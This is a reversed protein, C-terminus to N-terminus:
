RGKTLYKWDDGPGRLDEPVIQHIQFDAIRQVARTVARLATSYEASAKAIRQAGDPHPLGSPSQLRVQDFYASAADRQKVATQFQDELLRRIRQYNTEM